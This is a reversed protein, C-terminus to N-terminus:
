ATGKGGFLKGQLPEGCHTMQDAERGRAEALHEKRMYGATVRLGHKQLILGKM